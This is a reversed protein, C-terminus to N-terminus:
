QMSATLLAPLLELRLLQSQQRWCIGKDSIPTFRIADDSHVTRLCISILHIQGDAPAAYSVAAMGVVADAYPCSPVGSFGDSSLSCCAVIACRTGSTRAISIQFDM